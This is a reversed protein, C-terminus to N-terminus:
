DRRAVRFGYTDARLASFHRFASRLHDPSSNWSGGRLVRLMCVGSSWAGGDAPAGRYNENWCDETWEWANGHVDYLGFSNPAYSGAAVTKGRHPASANDSYSEISRFNAQAPAIRAGTAFPASTGGRAAYEWEAETLLRYNKGTKRALWDAYAKADGWSVCVVPDNETQSFGPNRWDRSPDHNVDSGTWVYCGDAAVTHGSEQVFRAFQARTVEYRGAAFQRAFIVPHWPGERQMHGAEADPSGMVFSGAPIVVMQPCGECDRFVSGPTMAALTAGRAADTGPSAVAVQSSQLSKIRAQALLVFVGNPYQSLYARLEEPNRSDKISDWFVRENASSADGAAREGRAAQVPPASFYFDGSSQDYIAPNQTHGVSRAKERVSTRLRRVMEDVRMGPVRLQKVFERTFLGNPDRDEPSLRDLAQENIGASYVVMLGDPAQPITLGRSGGLSRGAAKPLPNDRCADVVLLTFKARAQALREMVRGLEIAEDAIDDQSKAQIDIPLLFNAGGIQVGHGAFFLVGVGGGGVAEVFEGIARNMERRNLNAHSLVRFGYRGLEAGVAKADAAARELPAVGQYRDNGIVLAVRTESAPLNQTPVLGRRPAQAAASFAVAAACLAVGARWWLLGTLSRNM